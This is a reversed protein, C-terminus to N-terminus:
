ASFIKAPSTRPRSTTLTAFSQAPLRSRISPSSYTQEPIRNAIRCGTAVRSCSSHQEPVIHHHMTLLRRVLRQVHKNDRSHLFFGLPSKEQTEPCQRHAVSKNKNQLICSLLHRM